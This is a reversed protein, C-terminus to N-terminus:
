SACHGFAITVLDVVYKMKRPAIRAFRMRANFEM